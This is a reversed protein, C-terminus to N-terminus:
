RAEIEHSQVESNTTEKYIGVQESVEDRQATEDTMVVRSRTVNTTLTLILVYARM